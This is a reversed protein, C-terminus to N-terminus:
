LLFTITKLFLSTFNHTTPMSRSCYVSHVSLTLLLHSIYLSCCPVLRLSRYFVRVSTCCQTEPSKSGRICVFQRHDSLYSQLWALALGTIDFSNQLRNLLVSHVLTDFAASLDLSVLVTSSGTDIAHYINDLALLLASETSFFHRYASQFPNFNSSSTTHSQIHKLILRELMKIFM